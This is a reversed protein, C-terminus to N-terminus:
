VTRSSEDARGMRRREERGAREGKSALAEAMWM